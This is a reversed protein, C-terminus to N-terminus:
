VALRITTAVGVGVILTRVTRPSLRRIVRTGLVGGVFTGVLLMLVAAVALHGRAIFVVAAVANIIISLANRLGQLTALDDPLTLGMVALLVIGLGAGFYGGYIATLFVGVHLGIRRTPHDHSIHALRATILPSAGFVVTATGVLWPVVSRFTTSSETLLLATGAGAGAACAPVLSWVLSRRRALEERFGRLGGLYSPLVGVSSSVNAQLAPISVSLLTPFTIFTGGGAIGNAVGAGVGALLFIALRWGLPVAVLVM